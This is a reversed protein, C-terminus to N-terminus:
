DAAQHCITSVEHILQLAAIPKILFKFSQGRARAEDVLNAAHPHGSFLLIDCDVHLSKLRSALEIGSLEPMHIDSILLDPSEALAATLAELPDTFSVVSFGSMRLIDALTSAIIPDDDVVYIRPPQQTM